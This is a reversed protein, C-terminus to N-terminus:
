AESMRGVSREVTDASRMVFGTDELKMDTALQAEAPDGTFPACAALLSFRSLTTSPL